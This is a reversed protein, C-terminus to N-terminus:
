LPCQETPTVPTGNILLPTYNPEGPMRRFEAYEEELKGRAAQRDFPAENARCDLMQEDLEEELDMEYEAEEEERDENSTTAQLLLQLATATFKQMQRIAKLANWVTLIRDFIM